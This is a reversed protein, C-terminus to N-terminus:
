FIVTSVSTLFIDFVHLLGLINEPKTCHRGGFRLSYIMKLMSGNDSTSVTADVARIVQASRRSVNKIDYQVSM